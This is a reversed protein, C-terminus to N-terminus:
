GFSLLSRWQPGAGGIAETGSASSATRAPTGAPLAIYLPRCAGHPGRHFGPGCGQAVHIIDRSSAGSQDIPALPMAQASVSVLGLAFAFASAALIKMPDKREERKAASAACDPKRLCCPPGTVALSMVSVSRGVLTVAGIAIGTTGGGLWHRRWYSIGIVGAGIGDSTGAVAGISRSRTSIISTARHVVAPEVGERNRPALGPQPVVPSLPAANATAALAATAAVPGRRTESFSPTRRRGDGQM